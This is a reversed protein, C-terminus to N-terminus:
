YKACLNNKLVTPTAQMQFSNIQPEPMPAMGMLSEPPAGQVVEQPSQMQPQRRMRIDTDNEWYLKVFGSGYKVAEKLADYFAVKFNAKRMEYDMVDQILRAQLDDGAPGAATQIPPNPGMMTKFIRNCIIEVNQFTIDVFMTSQWPEKRAADTPDYIAHYNRDCRNWKEHLRSSRWDWSKQYFNRVYALLQAKREAALPSDKPPSPLEPRPSLESASPLQASTQLIDM